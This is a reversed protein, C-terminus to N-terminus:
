RPIASHPPRGRCRRACPPPLRCARGRSRDPRRWRRRIVAPPPLCRPVAPRSRRTAAVPHPAAPRRTRAQSASRYGVCTAPPWGAAARGASWARPAPRRRSGAARPRVARSGPRAACPTWGRRAAAPPPPRCQPLRQAPRAPASAPAAASRPWSTPPWQLRGPWANPRPSRCGRALRACRGPRLGPCSWGPSRRRRRAAAAWPCKAM